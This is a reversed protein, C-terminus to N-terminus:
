SMRAFYTLEWQGAALNHRIISIAGEDGRIKFSRHETGLWRDIREVGQDSQQEPFLPM